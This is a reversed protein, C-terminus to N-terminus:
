CVTDDAFPALMSFLSNNSQGDIARAMAADEDEAPEAAAASAVASAASSSSICPESVDTDAVATMVTLKGVADTVADVDATLRQAESASSLGDHQKAGPSFSESFVAERHTVADEQAKRDSSQPGSATIAPSAFSDQCVDLKLIDAVKVWLTTVDDGLWRLTDNRSPMKVPTVYV